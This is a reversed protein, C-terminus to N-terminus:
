ASVIWLFRMWLEIKTKCIPCAPKQLICRKLCPGHFIHHCPTKRATKMPSLCVACVDDLKSLEERTARSFQALMSWEEFAATIITSLIDRSGTYVNTYLATLMLFHKQVTLTWLMFFVAFGVEIVGLGGQVYYQELGELIDLQLYELLLTLEKEFYRHTCVFYIVSLVTYSIKLTHLQRYLLFLALFTKATRIARLEADNTDNSNTVNSRASNFQQYVTTFAEVLFTYSLLSHLWVLYHTPVMCFQMMLFMVATRVVRRNRTRRQASPTSHGEREAELCESKFMQLGRVTGLLTRFLTLSVDKHYKKWARMMIMALVLVVNIGLFPSTM